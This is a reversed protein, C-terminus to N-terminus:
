APLTKHLSLNQKIIKQSPAKTRCQFDAHRVILLALILEELVPATITPSLVNKKQRKETYIEQDTSIVENRADSTAHSRKPNPIKTEPHTCITLINICYSYIHQLKLCFPWSDQVKWFLHNEEHSCLGGNPSIHEM